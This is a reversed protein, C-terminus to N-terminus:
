PTGIFSLTIGVEFSRTPRSCLEVRKARGTSTADSLESLDSPWELALCSCSVQALSFYANVVDRSSPLPSHSLKLVHMRVASVRM